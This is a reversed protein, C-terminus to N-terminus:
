LSAYKICVLLIFTNTSMMCKICDMDYEFISTDTEIITTDSKKM